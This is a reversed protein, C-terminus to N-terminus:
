DLPAPIINGKDIAEQVIKLDSEVMNKILEKFNTKPIWGLDKKAMSPDGILVEVEAPRYFKPNIKVRLINNQDIAIVDKGSGQWTLNIGVIQFSEDILDKVSQTKGTAIVFDKPEDMQLMKWMMEVYDGAFGWDRQADINGVEMHEQVGSSIRAASLTVKRTIFEIGRRPSEHNFLIGTCAYIDYSERYNRTIDHAFVKACGYPSRPYFPTQETQPSEVVKGYQESSGAQYFKCDPAYNRISELCRLVGLGTVNATYGPSIWSEPVFSQAGLNYFEDPKIAKVNTDISVQDCLDGSVLHFFENNELHNILFRGKSPQSVRRVIGYVEYGKELLFEALYSGDQGTIGTILAKKKNM